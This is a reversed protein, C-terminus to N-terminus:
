AGDAGGARRGTARPWWWALLDRDAPGYARVMVEGFRHLIEDRRGEEDLGLGAALDTGERWAGTDSPLPLARVATASVRVAGASLGSGAADRALRAASPPACIAALLERPGVGVAGTPEVSVTPTVPVMQGGLDAVAELVRTQTAVLVKPVQRKRAWRAVAPADTQLSDVDLRPDAVLRGGLRRPRRRDLRGVDIMGVTVLPPLQPGWGPEDRSRAAASLAYFEDRFGATATAVDGITRHGAAGAPAMEGAPAIEPVGLATALLPGWSQGPEPRPRDAADAATGWHVEVGHEVEEGRDGDVGRRLVPAWVDVEADFHRGDDAWVAVPAAVELLRDRVAGADRASLTSRPQVMVAVGGPSLMEAAVLLFVAAEDVYPGLPGFRADVQERRAVDRATDVTRQSLFPPNGVVLDVSGAPGATPDLADLEVVRVDVPRRVGHAAAWRRLAERCHAVAEPDVDWGELRQEVVEAPDAGRRVLADAAALLFSGAGCSPDLVRQPLRHLHRLALEVLHLALAEPTAHSGLERRREATLGRAHDAVADRASRHRPGGSGEVRDRDVM